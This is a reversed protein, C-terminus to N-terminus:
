RSPLQYTMLLREDANAIYQWLPNLERNEAKKSQDMQMPREEGSSSHSEVKQSNLSSDVSAFYSSSNTSGPLM